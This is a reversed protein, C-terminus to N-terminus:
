AAMLLINLMCYDVIEPLSAHAIASPVKQDVIRNLSSDPNPLVTESLVNVHIFYKLLAM